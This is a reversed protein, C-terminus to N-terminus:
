QEFIRFTGLDCLQYLCKPRLRCIYGKKRSCDAFFRALSHSHVPEGTTESSAYAILVWIVPVPIFLKAQAKM